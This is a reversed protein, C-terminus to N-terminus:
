QGLRTALHDLIGVIETVHTLIWVLLIIGVLEVSCGFCGRPSTIANGYAKAFTTLAAQKQEATLPTPTTM